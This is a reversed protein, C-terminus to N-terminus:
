YYGSRGTVGLGGRMAKPKSNSFIYSCFKQAEEVFSSDLDADTLEEMRRMNKGIAPRDFTFCRRPAFFDRLGQRLQNQRMVKVSFVILVFLLVEYVM